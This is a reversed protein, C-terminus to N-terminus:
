LNSLLLKSFTAVLVNIDFSEIKSCRSFTKSRIIVKSNVSFKFDIRFIYPCSRVSASMLWIM